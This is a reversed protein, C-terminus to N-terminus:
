EFILYAPNTHSLKEFLLVSSDSLTLSFIDDDETPTFWKGDRMEKLFKVTDYFLKLSCSEYYASNKKKCFGIAEIERNKLNDVLNILLVKGYGQLVEVTVFGALEAIQHEFEEIKVKFNFNIRAISLMNSLPDTLLHFESKKFKNRFEGPEMENWEVVDWNELIIKIEDDSLEDPKKVSYRTDKTLLM